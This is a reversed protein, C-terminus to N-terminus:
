DWWFRWVRNGALGEAYSGITGSGQWVNDPCFAFHEAAVVLASQRDHPPIGVTLALTDFGIEVVRAAFRDEWSRLVASMTAPDQHVNVAGTWGLATVADAPRRAAILGIRRSTFSKLQALDDNPDQRRSFLQRFGSPTVGGPAAALGPFQSDFPELAVLSEPDDENVCQQWMEALVPEVSFQDTRRPDTPAFEESDWPRSKDGEMGLLMMPVLRTSESFARLRQLIIGADGVATNTLWVVPAGIMEIGGPAM